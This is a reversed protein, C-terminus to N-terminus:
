FFTRYMGAVFMSGAAVMIGYRHAAPPTPTLLLGTLLYAGGGVGFMGGLVRCGMCDQQSTRPRASGGISSGGNTAHQSAAAPQQEHNNIEKTVMAILRSRMRMAVPFDAILHYSDTCVEGCVLVSLRIRALRVPM